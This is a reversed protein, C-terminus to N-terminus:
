ARPVGKRLQRLVAMPDVQAPDVGAVTVHMPGLPIQELLKERARGLAAAAKLTIRTTMDSQIDM